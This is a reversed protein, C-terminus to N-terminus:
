ALHIMPITLLKPRNLLFHNDNAFIFSEFDLIFESLFVVIVILM